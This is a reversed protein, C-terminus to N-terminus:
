TRKGSRFSRVRRCLTDLRTKSLSPPERLVGAALVQARAKRETLDARDKPKKSSGGSEEEEIMKRNREFSAQYIERIAARKGLHEATGADWLSPPKDRYHRAALRDILESSWEILRPEPPERDTTPKKGAM